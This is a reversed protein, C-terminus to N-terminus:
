QKVFMIENIIDMNKGSTLPFYSGLCISSFLFSCNFTVYDQVYVCSCKIYLASLRETLYAFIRSDSINFTKYAAILKCAARKGGFHGLYGTSYFLAKWGKWQLRMVNTERGTGTQVYPGKAKDGLEMKKQLM